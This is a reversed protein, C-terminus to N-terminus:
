WIINLFVFVDIDAENRQDNCLLLFFILIIWSSYFNLFMEGSQAKEGRKEPPPLLSDEPSAATATQHLNESKNEM